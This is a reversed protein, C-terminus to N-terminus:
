FVRPHDEAAIVGDTVVGGGATATNPTRVAPYYVELLQPRIRSPRFGKALSKCEDPTLGTSWFGVEAILGHFRSGYEYNGESNVSGGIAAFANNAVRLRCNSMEGDTEGNLFVRIKGGLHVVALHIWQDTPLPSQFKAAHFTEDAAKVTYSQQFNDVSHDYLINGQTSQDAGGCYGFVVEPRGLTEHAKIWGAITHDNAAFDASLQKNQTRITAGSLAM